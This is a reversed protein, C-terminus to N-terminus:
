LLATLIGRLEEQIEEISRNSNIVRFRTPFEAARRLYEARTNAFFETQEQEFKDLDPTAKLRARAVELPVDFLLTLDPQM